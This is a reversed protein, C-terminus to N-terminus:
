RILSTAIGQPNVQWPVWVLALFKIKTDAKRIPIDIAELALNASSFQNSVFEIEDQCKRELEEKAALLEEYTEQARMVDGQQATVRGLGKVASAAKSVNSKSAIKNGLLAGLITTGINFFGEMQKAKADQKEKELRQQAALVRTQLSRLKEGNKAKLKEVAEDRAERAAHSLEIRADTESMGPSTTQKIAKCAYVTCKVHRFFYDKIAKEWLAYNKASSMEAPLEAFTYGDEPQNSLQLVDPEIKNAKDWLPDPVEDLIDVMYQVDEWYDVGATSKVYHISSQSLIAPRYVTKNKGGAIKTPVLFKETVDSPLIPRAGSDKTAGGSGAGLTRAPRDQKASKRKESMLKSIQDRSLPGRLFSLAWRSQFITPGDDHVNNMLFVRNGLASLSREMEPRDFANGQQMSAGELGDLVRDKDRQTQLRGLFWTGMNSLGKYDLDVPNQTALVIGLGFARAQKLLTLMPPKSPPKASPPFYGYVEDMYFIARLSGTGPQARMWALLEGLFITVFFMRESDNLHAISIISLRPKGEANYLLGKIDLAQGELWGAFSPSALLNNLSMALKARDAPSYFSDLDIVGIKKIPPLQIQRILDELSLKNGNKWAHDFINSVLIHERSTLPDADIGLLTLLGSSASAVKERMTESDERVALPPADFSKLVTLPVGVNSGPTFITIDVSDRFRQIRDAPQHWDSLGTRWRNATEAAIEEIPKGQRTAESPEIWEQFDSPALNPFALLLNGLDGK